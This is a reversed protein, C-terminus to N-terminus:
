KDAHDRYHTIMEELTQDKSVMALPNIKLLEEWVQIAKDRNNMDNALVIGKNIFAPQFAPDQALARDFTKIAMGPQGAMRYMVGLDTIVAPNEGGTELAKSYAHIAKKYQDTDYYINGLKTWAATDAPDAEVRSVLAATMAALDGEQVQGPATTGSPGAKFVATGAGGIFGLAFIIVAFIMAASRTLIIQDKKEAM